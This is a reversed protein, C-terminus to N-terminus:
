AKQKRNRLLLLVTLGVIITSIVVAWVNLHRSEAFMTYEQVAFKTTLPRYYLRNGAVSDANSSVVTWPMEIINTYRADRAFSMFGVRSNIDKSLQSFDKAAKEKPLPIGLSDAIKSAFQASGDWDDLKKYIFDKRRALTDLWKKDTTNQQVVDRLIQYFENFLADDAYKDYIKENLQELFLSDARSIATGEGPLRTLFAKDELNFYDEPNIKKFRDIPSFTESYRIYTYFWRFNKEFTTNINFLTDLNKNLESNAAEASAFTKKFEIKYKNDNNEKEVTDVKVVWGSAENIGFMNSTERLKETEELVITKDLSGDEHVKTEMRIPNECCTLSWLTVLAFFIKKM